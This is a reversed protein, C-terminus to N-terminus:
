EEEMVILGSITIPKGMEDRFSLFYDDESVEISRIGPWEHLVNGLGGFLQVQKDTGYREETVCVCGDYIRVTKNERTQLTIIRARAGISPYISREIKTKSLTWSDLMPGAPAYHTIKWSRVLEVPPTAGEVVKTLFMIAGILISFWVVMELIIQAERRNHM